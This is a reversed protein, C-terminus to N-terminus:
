SEHNYLGLLEKFLDYFMWLSVIVFGSYLLYNNYVSCTYCWRDSVLFYVFAVDIFVSLIINFIRDKGKLKKYYLVNGIIVMSSSIIGIILILKLWFDNM